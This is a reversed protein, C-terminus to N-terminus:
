FSYSVPADTFSCITATANRLYLVEVIGDGVSYMGKLGPNADLMSAVAEDRGDRVLEATLRIWKGDPTMGTIEAKPNATIQAYVAKQNSTILYLKDEFVNLAGFPRVHPQDGDVTALYFTGAQKLFEYVEKM